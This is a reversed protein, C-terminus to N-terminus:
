RNGGICIRFTDWVFRNPDFVILATSDHVLSYQDSPLHDEGIDIYYEIITNYLGPFILLLTFPGGM